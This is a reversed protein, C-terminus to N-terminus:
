PQSHEEQYEGVAETAALRMRESAILSRLVDTKNMEEAQAIQTVWAMEEPSLAITLREVPGRKKM